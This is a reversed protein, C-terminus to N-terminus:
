GKSGITVSVKMAHGQRLIALEARSGVQSAAIQDVLEDPTRIIVGNFQQIIDGARIGAKQAPSGSVVQRVIIGSDQKVGLAAALDDTISGVVVGLWPHVVKGTSIMEQLVGQATNSPIAFGIGQASANVATNIGVVKGQLNLLPGGSNGPNISADTQLLNRYKKNEVTVPRGKASVVGVTVTHDLGYPNGIAIVWEGVRTQDSDGFELFPLEEAAEIKLVALDLDSDSGVLRASFTQSKGQVIVNIESAGGVVHENTLIYGDKSIIFGSGLGQVVRQQTQTRGGFFERFFPDNMFPDNRLSVARTEIKVVAPGAAEVIDAIINPEAPLYSPSPLSQSDAPTLDTALSAFPIGGTLAVAAILLLLLSLSASVTLFRGPKKVRNKLYRIILM